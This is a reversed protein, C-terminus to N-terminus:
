DGAGPKELGVKGEHSPERIIAALWQKALM